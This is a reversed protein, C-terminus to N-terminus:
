ENLMWEYASGKLAGAVEEFNDVLTNVPYPNTRNYRIDISDVEKQLFQCIKQYAILPDNQLDEEYCLWLNRRNKIVERLHEFDSTYSELFSCLSQSKDDICVKDIDLEVTYQKAQESSAKHWVGSNSAIVSSIIKRLYNKRELVIFHTFGMAELDNFFEQLSNGMREIHFFKIECGYYQNKGSLAHRKRFFSQWDDNNIHQKEAIFEKFVEGDWFISKDQSLMDGLVTSGSRGIHFMAIKGLQSEAGVIPSAWLKLNAKMDPIARTKLWWLAARPDGLGRKIKTLM